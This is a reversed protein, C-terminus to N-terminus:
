AADNTGGGLLHQGAKAKADLLGAFGEMDLLAKNARDRMLGIEQVSRRLVDEREQSWPIVATKHSQSGRMGPKYGLIIGGSEVHELPEDYNEVDLLIKKTEDFTADLKAVRWGLQWELGFSDGNEQRWPGVKDGRTRIVLVKEWEDDTIGQFIETARQKLRTIDTDEVVIDNVVVKFHDTEAGRFGDKPVAYLQVKISKERQFGNEDKPMVAYLTIQDLTRDNCTVKRVNRKM